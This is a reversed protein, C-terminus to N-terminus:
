TMGTVSTYSRFLTSRTQADGVPFCVRHRASGPEPDRGRRAGWFSARPRYSEPTCWHIGDSLLQADLCYSSQSYISVCLPITEISAYSGLRIAAHWRVLTPDRGKAEQRRQMFDYANQPEPAGGSSIVDAVDAPVTAFLGLSLLRDRGHSPV